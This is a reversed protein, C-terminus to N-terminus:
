SARVKTKIKSIKIIKIYLRNKTCGKSREREKEKGNYSSTRETNVIMFIM